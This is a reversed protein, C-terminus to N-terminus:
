KALRWAAHVRLTKLRDYGCYRSAAWGNDYATGDILTVCHGTSAGRGTVVVMWRGRRAQRRWRNFVRPRKHSQTEIIGGPELARHLAERTTNQYDGGAKFIRRCSADYSEGFLYSLAFPTCASRAAFNLIM